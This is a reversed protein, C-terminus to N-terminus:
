LVGSLAIGNADCGDIIKHGVYQGDVTGDGAGDRPIKRLRTFVKMM